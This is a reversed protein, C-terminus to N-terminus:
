KPDAGDSGDPKGGFFKALGGVFQGFWTTDSWEGTLIVRILVAIAMVFGIAIFTAVIGKEILLLTVCFLVIALLAITALLGFRYSAHERRNSAENNSLIKNALEPNIQALNAIEAIDNGHLHFEKISVYRADDGGPVGPPQDGRGSSATPPIIEPM